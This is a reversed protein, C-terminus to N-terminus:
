PRSSNNLPPVTQVEVSPMRVVYFTEQAVTTDWSSTQLKGASYLRTSYLGTGPSLLQDVGWGGKGGVEM